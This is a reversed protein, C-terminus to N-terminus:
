LRNIQIKFATHTIYGYIRRGFDENFVLEVALESTGFAAWVGAGVSYTEYYCALRRHTVYLYNLFLPIFRMM